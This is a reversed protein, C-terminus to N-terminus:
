LFITLGKIKWLEVSLRGAWSEKESVRTDDVRSGLGKKSDNLHMGKLYRFGVVEEFHEFTEEFGSPTRIDYGAAFAHCTDLCVGVRKKDEVREIIYALHEFRYGLDSGQGATNELM